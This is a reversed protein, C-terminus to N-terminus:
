QRTRSLIHSVTEDQQEKILKNIKNVLEQLAEARRRQKEMMKPQDFNKLGGLADQEDALDAETDYKLYALEDLTFIPEKM